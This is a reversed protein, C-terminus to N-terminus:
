SNLCADVPASRPAQLPVSHLCPKRHGRASCRIESVERVVIMPAMCMEVQLLIRWLWARGLALLRAFRRSGRLRHAGDDTRVDRRKLAAAAASEAVPQSDHGQSISELGGTPKSIAAVIQFFLEPWLLTVGVATPCSVM